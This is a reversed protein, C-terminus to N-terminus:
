ERPRTAPGHPEFLHLVFNTPTSDDVYFPVPGRFGIAYVPVRTYIKNKKFVVIASLERYTTVM